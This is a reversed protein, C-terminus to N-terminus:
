QLIFVMFSKYWTVMVFVSHFLVALFNFLVFLLYQCYGLFTTPLIRIEGQIVTCGIFSRINHPSIFDKAGTGPCAADCLMDFVDNYNTRFPSRFKSYCFASIYLSVVSIAPTSMTARDFICLHVDHSHVDRSHVVRSHVNRSHNTTSFTLACLFTETICKTPRHTAAIKPLHPM